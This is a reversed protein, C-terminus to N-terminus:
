RQAAFRWELNENRAYRPGGPVSIEVVVPAAIRVHDVKDQRKVTVNKKRVLLRMSDGVRPEVPQPPLEITVSVGLAQKKKLERCWTTREITVTDRSVSLVKDTEFKGLCEEYVNPQWGDGRVVLAGGPRREVGHVLVDVFGDRELYQSLVDATLECTYGDVNNFFCASGVAAAWAKALWECGEEGPHCLQVNLQTRRGGSDRGSSALPALERILEDSRKLEVFRRAREARIRLSVAAREGGSVVLPGPGRARLSEEKWRIIRQPHEPATATAGPEVKFGQAALQQEYLERCLAALAKLAEAPALMTTAEVRAMLGAADDRPASGSAPAPQAAPPPAATTAPREAHACATCVLTLLWMTKSTM